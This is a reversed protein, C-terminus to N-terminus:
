RTEGKWWRGQGALVIVDNLTAVLPNMGGVRALQDRVVTVVRLLDPAASVLAANSRDRYATGDRFTVDCVKRGHQDTVKILGNLRGVCPTATWADKTLEYDPM